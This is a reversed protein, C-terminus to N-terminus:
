KTVPPPDGDTADQGKEPEAELLGKVEVEATVNVADAAAKAGDRQLKQLWSTGGVAIIFVAPADLALKMWDTTGIARRQMWFCVGVSVLAALGVVAWGDIKVKFKELRLRVFAVIAVVLLALPVFPDLLQVLPNPTM